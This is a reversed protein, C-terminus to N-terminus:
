YWVMFPQFGKLPFPFHPKISRVIEHVAPSGVAPAQSGGPTVRIMPREKILCRHIRASPLVPIRITRSPKPMFFECDIMGRMDIPIRTRKELTFYGSNETLMNEIRNFLQALNVYPSKWALGAGM